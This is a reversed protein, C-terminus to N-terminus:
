EELVILSGPETKIALIVEQPSGDQSCGAHKEDANWLFALPISKIQSALIELSGKLDDRSVDHRERGFVTAKSIGL